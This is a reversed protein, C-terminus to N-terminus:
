RQRAAVQKAVGTTNFRYRAMEVTVDNAEAIDEATHGALAAKLLLPRPLLLAGGYATAQEEEDPRCTRFMHGDIARLETLNHGIRLHSLEHAVDSNRRGSSRLPNTVIIDRGKINFTVASLSWAQVRELEEFEGEDILKAGDVVSINLHEAIASASVPAAKHLGMAVRLAEADKEARTM